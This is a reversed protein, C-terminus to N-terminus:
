KSDAVLSRLHQHPLFNEIYLCTMISKDLSQQYQFNNYHLSSKDTKSLRRDKFIYDKSFIRIFKHCKKLNRKNFVNYKIM